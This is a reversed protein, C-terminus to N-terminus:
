RSRSRVRARVCARVCARLRVNARGSMWVRVFVRVCWCRLASNVRGEEVIDRSCFSCHSQLSIAFNQIVDVEPYWPDVCRESGAGAQGVEQGDRLGCGPVAGGSSCLASHSSPPAWRFFGIEAGAGRSRGIGVGSLCSVCALKRAVHVLCWPAATPPAASLCRAGDATSVQSM